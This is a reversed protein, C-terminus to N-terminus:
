GHWKEKAGKLYYSRIKKGSGWYPLKRFKEKGSNTHRRMGYGTKIGFCAYKTRFTDWGPLFSQGIEKPYNKMKLNWMPQGKMLFNLRDLLLNRGAVQFATQSNKTHWYDKGLPMVYNNTNRYVRDLRPPVFTFYDPSYLCDAECSVVYDATCMGVALQLQRCFNFGSAGIDGVCMNFDFDMPKQTVSYVPLNGKKSLMDAVIKKEFEPKERNSSIYIVAGTM